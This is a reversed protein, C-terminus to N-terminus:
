KLLHKITEISKGSLYYSNIADRDSKSLSSDKVKASLVKDVQELSLEKTDETKQIYDVSTVSKRQPVSTKLTELFKSVAEMNKKLEENKAQLSSIESKALAIEEDKKVIEESKAMEIPAQQASADELGLAKKLANLHHTKEKDDMSSYMKHLEELDEDDYDQSPQEQKDEAEAKDEQADEAKDEQADEAKDEASGEVEDEKDSDDQVDESKKLLDGFAVDVEKLLNFIQEDTYKITM